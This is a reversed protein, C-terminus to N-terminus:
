QHVVIENLSYGLSKALRNLRMFDTKKANEEYRKVGIEVYESGKTVTNYYLTAIKRATAKVAVQPGKRARLKRGFTGLGISKSNLLSHAAEKFIQGAVTNQKGKYRRKTKGSDRKKPSLGLWSVFRKDNKWEKLTTGVEAALRIASYDTLGPIKSVDKGEMVKLIQEHFNEIKPKHHRIQKSPKKNIIEPKNINNKKLWSEITSDCEAILGNYFNWSRYAHELMFVYEPRYNGNLSKLVEEKKNKIIQKDCLPLLRKPDREGNLIAEIIKRGSVGQIQSIVQHLRINMLIFAKQIHLIHSAAMEIHDQRLRIIARLERINEEPIFCPRLLGRQYLTRIWQCDAGDSKERGPLQNADGARVLDVKLGKSELVDKLPIWYVGTAEMAVANINNKIMYDAAQLFDETFTGFKKYGEDTASVFIDTSGIDIGAVNPDIISLKTKMNLAKSTFKLLASSRARLLIFFRFSSIPITM